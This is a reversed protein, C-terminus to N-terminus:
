GSARRERAGYEAVLAAASAATISALPLPSSVTTTRGRKTQPAPSVVSSGIMTRMAREPRMRLTPPPRWSVEGVVTSWM